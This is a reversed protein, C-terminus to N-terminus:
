LTSFGADFGYSCFWIFAARNYKCAEYFEGESMGLAKAVAGEVAVNHAVVNGMDFIFLKMSFSYLSKYFRFRM